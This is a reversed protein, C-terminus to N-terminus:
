KTVNGHTAILHRAVSVVTSSPIAFGLGAVAASWLLAASAAGVTGDVSLPM